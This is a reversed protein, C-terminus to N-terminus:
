KQQYREYATKYVGVYKDLGMKKLKSVYNDWESFPVKGTVFKTKMEEMYTNIDGGSTTLVDNEAANFTFPSWITKPVFPEVKKTADLSAQTGESGKFFQKRVIGAYGGGPWTLFKSM